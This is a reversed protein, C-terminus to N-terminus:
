RYEVHVDRITGNFKFPARDFYAQSVPSGLDQGVDFTETANFALVATHPIEARGAEQGDIRLIAEAPGTRKFGKRKFEVSVTRRGAPLKAPSTIDTRWVSYGNYEYTVIGKDVYLTVGGGMGGLAVLVGSADEPFDADVTMVNDRTGLKPGAFESIRRTDAAFHFDDGSGEDHRPRFIMLLSQGIPDVHNARADEDFEKRLEALKDPHLAAVDRSQSFDSHLDYLAWQDNEPKWSLWGLRDAIWPQHTLFALKGPWSLLGALDSVWPKRPGFVSAIWGDSYEARSGMIEFYQRQKRNEAKPDDFTYALSVGDLPDQKVGDVSDPPMIGLVDYITPAIDNVHTFQTRVVRDHHIRAPWSIAMPTRTGGFYGAVLKTGVFPSEGAWAWAAAYHEHLQPGGLADLGGYYKDLADINQRVTTSIGFEGMLDNIAGSMGESSAGNDSFVYVILTNNRIGLRDLEDVVRGAQTDAHELFGAFIEMERAHFAKEAASLGDWAPMEAPRPTNKTDAPIWGMAKQREFAQDRYVDWGSDFKGKYKDAWDKFIQHPSHVAGPAWYVFFPKKPDAQHQHDIWSIARDALDTSLHYRPDAPAEVPQTDDFLAPHYQDSEGGNFGYFHDFGYATPWHNFPGKISAEAPPTNHWKGFAATAYGHTRLIEPITAASKPIIGTYGDSESSMETITGNGVRHHNRGTLLAARTASSIATTHFANYLVGAGAVRSLTPTHVIGGVTDSQAFGADDLLIVLVNPGGQPAEGVQEPAVSAPAPGAAFAPVAGSAAAVLSTATKLVFRLRM